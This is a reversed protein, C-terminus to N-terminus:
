ADKKDAVATNTRTKEVKVLTRKQQLTQLTAILNGFGMTLQIVASAFIQLEERYETWYLKSLNCEFFFTHLLLFGLGIEWIQAVFLFPVLLMLEKPFETITEQYTVDMHKINGLARNAYERRKHYVNQLNQVIGNYLAFTTFYPM